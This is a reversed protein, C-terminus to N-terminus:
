SREGYLTYAASAVVDSSVMNMCAHTKIPCSPGGHKACPRCLLSNEEVVVAHNQWPRYGFKLVTPGFIAVTPINACAALHMSGSDNSIVISSKTLLLFTETITTRGALNLAGPIKEAVRTCLERENTAGHVVVQFDKSLRQGVEIFGEAIWQKTMWVSGPFLFVWPRSLSQLGLKEILHARQSLVHSVEGSLNMSAWDPVAARDNKVGSEPLHDVRGVASFYSKIRLSLDDSLPELVQLQRLAEPLDPNKNVRQHYAFFNWWKHFGIKQKAKIQSVFLSTRISEHPCLLLEIQEKSLAKAVKQYSSRKGKEIEFVQDVLGLDVLFDGLGKRCIYILKERSFRSRLEKLLPVSLLVDGLFATQVILISSGSITM